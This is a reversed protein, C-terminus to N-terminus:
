FSLRGVMEWVRGGVTTGTIQEPSNNGIANNGPQGFSPHNLINTAEARFQFKVGRDPLIDFSKGLSFNVNTLDPGRIQTGAQLNGYQNTYDSPNEWPQSGISDGSAEVNDNFWSHLSHYPYVPGSLTKTSLNYNQWPKTYDGDLIAKRRAPVRCTAPLTTAELPSEWRIEARTM